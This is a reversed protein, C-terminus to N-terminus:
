STELVTNLDKVAAAKFIYDKVPYEKVRFEWQMPHWQHYFGPVRQRVKQSESISDALARDEWGWSVNHYWGETKKYDELRCAFNGYSTDRWFGLSHDSVAFSFFIPYYFLGKSVSELAGEFVDRSQFYLDADCFFLADAQFKSEALAAAKKLGGGRDFFPYTTVTELHWPINTGIEQELMEQITVDSSNYDVVVLVWDDEPRKHRLFSRLMKPFLLLILKNDNTKLPEIQLLCSDEIKESVHQLYQLSDEPDVIVCSRNKVAICFALRM